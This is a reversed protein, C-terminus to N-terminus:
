PARQRVQRTGSNDRLGEFIFPNPNAAPDLRPGSWPHFHPLRPLDFYQTRVLPAHDPLPYRKELFTMGLGPAHNPFTSAPNGSFIMSLILIQAHDPFTRIPKGAFEHEFL